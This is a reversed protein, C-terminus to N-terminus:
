WSWRFDSHIQIASNNYQQTTCVAKCPLFFFPLLIYHLSLFLCGFASVCPNTSIFVSIICMFLCLSFLICVGKLLRPSPKSAPLPDMNLVKYVQGFALLRLAHQFVCVCVSYICTVTNTFCCCEAVSVMIPFVQASGWTETFWSIRNLSVEHMTYLPPFFVWVFPSFSLIELSALFCFCVSKLPSFTCSIFKLIDEYEEPGLGCKGGAHKTPGWQLMVKTSTGTHTHAPFLTGVSMLHSILSSIWWVEM